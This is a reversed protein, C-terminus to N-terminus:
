GPYIKYRDNYCQGMWWVPVTGAIVSVCFSSEGLIVVREGTADGNTMLPWYAINNARGGAFRHNFITIIM